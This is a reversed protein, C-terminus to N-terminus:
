CKIIFNLVISAPYVKGGDTYISSSRSAQMDFGLYGTGDSGTASGMSPEVIQFAGSTIASVIWGNFQAYGTINPGLM